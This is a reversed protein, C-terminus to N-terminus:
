KQKASLKGMHFGLAYAGGAISCLIASFAYLTEFTVM